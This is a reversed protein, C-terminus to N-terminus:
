PEGAEFCTFKKKGIHATQCMEAFYVQDHNSKFLVGPDPLYLYIIQKWYVVPM